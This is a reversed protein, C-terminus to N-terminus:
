DRAVGREVWLWAGGGAVVLLLAVLPLIVRMDWVM